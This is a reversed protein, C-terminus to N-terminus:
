LNSEPRMAPQEHVHGVLPSIKEGLTSTAKSSRLMKLWGSTMASLLIGRRKLDVQAIVLEFFV